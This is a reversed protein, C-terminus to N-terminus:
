GEQEGAPGVPLNGLQIVLAGGPGLGGVAGQQQQQQGRPAPRTSCTLVQRRLGWFVRPSLGTEIATFRWGLHQGCTSCYAITWAYRGDAASRVHRDAVISSCLSARLLQVINNLVHTPFQFTEFDICMDVAPQLKERTHLQFSSPSPWDLLLMLKSVRPVM